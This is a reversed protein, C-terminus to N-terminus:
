PVCRGKRRMTAKGGASSAASPAARAGDSSGAAPLPTTPPSACGGERGLAGAGVRGPSGVRARATPSPSRSPWPSPSPTHPGMQSTPTSPSASSGAQHTHKAFYPATSPTSIPVSRQSPQSSGTSFGYSPTATSSSSSAGSSTAKGPPTAPTAVPTHPEPQNGLQSPGTVTVTVPGQTHLASGGSLSARPTSGASSGGCSSRHDNVFCAVRFRGTSYMSTLHLGDLAAVAVALPCPAKCPRPSGCYSCTALQSSGNQLSTAPQLLVPV